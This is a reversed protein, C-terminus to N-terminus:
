FYDSEHKNEKKKLYILTVLAGAVFLIFLGVGIATIAFSRNIDNQELRALRADTSNVSYTQQSVQSSLNYFNEKAYTAFVDLKDGTKFLYDFIGKAQDQTFNMTIMNSDNGYVYVVKPQTNCYPAEPHSGCYSNLMDIISQFNSTTSSNELNVYPIFINFKESVTNFNGTISLTREYNKNTDNTKSLAPTITYSIAKTSGPSLDFHNSSFTFWNADLFINKALYPGTNTISMLGDQSSFVDITYNKQLIVYSINTPTYLMHISLSLNANYLPNNVLGNDNLVTITCPNTFQYFGGRWCSYTLTTPVNFNVNYTSSVPIVSLDIVGSPTYQKLTVSDSVSNTWKISDGKVISIDCISVGNNFDINIDHTQNSTGIQATYFGYVSFTKTFGIDSLISVNVRVIQGPTISPITIPSLQTNNEITVNYFPFTGDNLIDFTFSLGSGSIKTSNYFSQNVIRLGTSSTFSICFCIVLIITILSITNKTM